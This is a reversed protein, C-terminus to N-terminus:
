RILGTTQNWSLTKYYNNLVTNGPIPFYVSLGCVSELKLDFFKETAAKYTICDSLAKDLRQLEADTAGAEYLLDRLDFFWHYENYFYAQVQSRPAEDLDDRHESVIDRFCSALADLKRCDVVTVTASRFMGSQAEYMEYFDRAIGV